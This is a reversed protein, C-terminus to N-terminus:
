VAQAVYRDAPSGDRTRQFDLIRTNFGAKQLKVAAEAQHPKPEVVFGVHAMGHLWKDGHDSSDGFAAIPKRLADKPTGLQGMLQGTAYQKGPGSSLVGDLEGTYKGDSGVKSRVGRIEDGAFGLERAFRGNVAELGATVVLPSYGKARIADLIPDIGAFVSPKGESEVLEASLEEVEKPTMGKLMEVQMKVGRDYGKGYEKPSLSKLQNWQADRYRVADRNVGLDPGSEDPELGLERLAESLAPRAEPKLLGRQAALEFFRGPFDDKWLTGDADFVVFPAIGQSRLHAASPLSDIFKLVDEPGVTIDAPTTKTPARPGYVKQTPAGGALPRLSPMGMGRAGRLRSPLEPTPTKRNPPSDTGTPTLVPYGSRQITQLSAPSLM